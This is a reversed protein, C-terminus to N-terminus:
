PLDPFNEKRGAATRGSNCYLRVFRWLDEDEPKERSYIRITIYGDANSFSARGKKTFAVPFVRRTAVKADFPSVVAGEPLKNWSATEDTGSGVSQEDGPSAPDGEHILFRSGDTPIVMTGDEDEWPATATLSDENNEEIEAFITKTNGAADEKNAIVVYYSNAWMDPVWNKQLAVLTEPSSTSGPTKIQVADAVMWANSANPTGHTASFNTLAISYSGGRTFSFMGFSHWPGSGVRQSVTFPVTGEAHHITYTVEDLCAGNSYPWHALVELMIPDGAMGGSEPITFHWTATGTVSGLTSAMYFYNAGYYDSAANNTGSDASGSYAFYHNDVTTDVNDITIMISGITGGGVVIGSEVVSGNALWCIGETQQAIATNRAHMLAGRVMNATSDVSSASMMPAIAPIGLLTLTVIIALAVLLEVLTFSVVRARDRSRM